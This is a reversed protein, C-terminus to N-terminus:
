GPGRDPHQLNFDRTWCRDPALALGHAYAEGRVILEGYLSEIMAARTPAKAKAWSAAFNRIYEVAKASDVGTRLRHEVLAVEENLRRMAALFAREGMRGAAVDLALERRRRELRGRDIPVVSAEPEALGAVISSTAEDDM